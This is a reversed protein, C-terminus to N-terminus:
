LWGGAFGCVFLLCDCKKKYTQRGQDRHMTRMNWMAIHHAYRPVRLGCPGDDLDHCLRCAVSFSHLVKKYHLGREGVEVETNKKQKNHQVTM